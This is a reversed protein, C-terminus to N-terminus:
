LNIRFTGAAPQVLNHTLIQENSRVTLINYFDVGGTYTSVFGELNEWADTAAAWKEQDVLQM